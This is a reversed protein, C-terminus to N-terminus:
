PRPPQTAGPSTGPSATIPTSFASCGASSCARARMELASSGVPANASGIQVPSTTARVSQYGNTVVAATRTATATTTPNPRSAGGGPEAPRYEVEAYEAFDDAFSFALSLTGAFTQVGATPAKRLDGPIGPVVNSVVLENSAPTCLLGGCAKVKVKFRGSGVITYSTTGAPLEKAQGNSEVVFGRAGGPIPDTWRLTIRGSTASQPSVIPASSGHRSAVASATTSSTLTALAPAVTEVTLRPAGLALTTTGFKQRLQAELHPLLFQAMARYGAENPHVTGLSLHVVNQGAVTASLGDAGQIRVADENSRFWSDRACLGHTYASDMAGPVYTWAAAHAATRVEANLRVVVSDHIFRAEAPNTNNYLPDTSAGRYCYSQPNAATNRQPPGGHTPDPYETIYVASPRLSSSLVVGTGRGMLADNLRGYLGPLSRLGKISNLTLPNNQCGAIEFGLVLCTVVVDGFNADNGGINMVLADIKRSPDGRFYDNIQTIQPALKADGKLEQGEFSELIGTTIKAGSCAFSVFTVDIEPYRVRLSEAAVASTSRPSRHCRFTQYRLNNDGTVTWTEATGTTFDPAAYSGHREPSAEGSAYSDGMTVITFRPRGPAQGSLAVPVCVAIAVLAMKPVKM